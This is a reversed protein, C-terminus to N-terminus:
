YFVAINNNNVFIDSAAMRKPPKRYFAVNSYDSKPM